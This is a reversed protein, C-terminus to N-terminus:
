VSLVRQWLHATKSQHYQLDPNGRPVVAHRNGLLDELLRVAAERAHVRRRGPFERTRIDLIYREDGAHGPLLRHVIGRLFRGFRVPIPWGTYM